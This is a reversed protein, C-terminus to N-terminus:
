HSMLIPVTMSALIGRTAGGLLFERLRSHGYGGMVILDSGKDAARSLITSAVDVDRVVQREFEVKLGHRALHHAIDAGPLEDSKAPEGAVTIVEVSKARTLFPLADGIARAANRSGDWCVMTRDLALPTKQIYPVILVPRGSDFLAAEVISRAPEVADPGPQAVVSVDFRRAIHGFLEAASAISAELLRSEARLGSGRTATEFRTIAAKAAKEIQSRHEQIIDVIAGELLTGPVYPTYVFAVATLHAEFARAVSVAFETVDDKTAASLNVLIDKIM